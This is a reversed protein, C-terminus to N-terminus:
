VTWKNFWWYGWCHNQLKYQKKKIERMSKDKASAKYDQWAKKKRKIATEVENGWWEDRNKTFGEKKGKVM